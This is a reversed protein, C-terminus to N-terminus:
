CESSLIHLPPSPGRALIEMGIWRIVRSPLGAIISQTILQPRRLAPSLVLFGRHYCPWLCTERVGLCNAHSYLAKEEVGKGM